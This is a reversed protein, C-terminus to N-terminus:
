SEKMDVKNLPMLIPTTRSKLVQWIAIGIGCTMIFIAVAIIAQTRGSFRLPHGPPLVAQHRYAILSALSVFVLILVPTGVEASARYRFGVLPVPAYLTLETYLILRDLLASAILHITLIHKYRGWTTPARFIVM